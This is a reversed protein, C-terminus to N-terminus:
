LIRVFVSLGRVSAGSLTADKNVAIRRRYVEGGKVLPITTHGRSMRTGCRLVSDFM